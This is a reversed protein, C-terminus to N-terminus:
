HLKNNMGHLSLRAKIGEEKTHTETHSDFLSWNDCSVIVVSIVCM